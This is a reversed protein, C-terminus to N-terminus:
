SGKNVQILAHMTVYGPSLRRRLSGGAAHAPRGARCARSSWVIFCQNCLLCSTYIYAVSGAANFLPTSRAIFCALGGYDYYPPPFHPYSRETFNDLGHPLTGVGFPTVKWPWNVAPSPLTGLVILLSKSVTPFLSLLFNIQDM